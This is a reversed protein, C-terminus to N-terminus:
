AYNKYFSFFKPQYRGNGFVFALFLYGMKTIAWEPGISNILQDGLHFLEMMVPSIGFGENAPTDYEYHVMDGEFNMTDGFGLNAAEPHPVAQRNRASYFTLFDGYLNPSLMHMFPVRQDDGKAGRSTQTIRAFRMVDECNDVWKASGSPWSTSSWNVLLPSVYDYESDGQGFPWDNALTANPFDDTELDSTWSGGASGLATSKGGYTDSPAAIKDGAVTNGDDGGFTKIGELRNTNGSAGGDVYLEGCLVQRIRKALRKSKNKYQDDIQTAGSNMLRQKVTMRDTATYGRVNTTLQQLADHENFDLDGSDGYQRVEPQMAEVTWTCSFSNANAEIMGYRQLMAMWLRRRFTLDSVGKFYKPATAKVVALHEESSAPVLAVM